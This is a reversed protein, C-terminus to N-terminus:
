EVTLDDEMSACFSGRSDSRPVLMVPEKVSVVLHTYHAYARYMTMYGRSVCALFGEYGWQEQGHSARAEGFQVGEAGVRGPMLYQRPM